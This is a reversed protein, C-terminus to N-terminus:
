LEDNGDCRLLGGKGLLCIMAIRCSQAQASTDHKQSRIDSSLAGSECIHAGRWIRLSTAQPGGGPAFDQSTAQVLCFRSGCAEHMQEAKQAPKKEDHSWIGLVIDSTHVDALHCVKIPPMSGQPVIKLYQDDVSILVLLSLVPHEFTREPLGTDSLCHCFYTQSPFM